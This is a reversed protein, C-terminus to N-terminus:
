SMLIPWLVVSLASPVLEESYIACEGGKNKRVSQTKSKSLMNLRSRGRTQLWASDKTAAVGGTGYNARRVAIRWSNQCM